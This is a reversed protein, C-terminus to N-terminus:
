NGNQVCLAETPLLIQGLHIKNRKFMKNQKQSLTERQTENQVHKTKSVFDGETVWVPTGPHSRLESCGGDGLNM